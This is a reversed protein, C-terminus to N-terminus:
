GVERFGGGEAEKREREGGSEGLEGEERQERERKGECVLVYVCLYSM